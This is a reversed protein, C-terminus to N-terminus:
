KKVQISVKARAHGQKIYSMAEALQELPWTKEIVAKIKGSAALDALFAIDVAKPKFSLSRIKRNGPSLLKGFILAKFIQAFSGGVMLYIGGPKLRRKCKLLSYSGNIALIHDYQKGKQLVKDRTYDIVEDAGLSRTQEVNRTSCVATVRAGFYKALQVAYVGVGGASGLILVEQGSQINCKTRTAHLATLGALPIAAADAFSLSAPKPVLVDETALAYEAFAGFNKISLDGMVEDGPKFNRIDRGAEVVKGAIDAGFIKTKPTIGLQLSRYDAANVSSAYVEILVQNDAPVPKEIEQYVLKDPKAKKNVVVAKM